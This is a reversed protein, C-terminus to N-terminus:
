YTGANTRAVSVLNSRGLSSAASALYALLARVLEPNIPGDRPVTLISQQSPHSIVHHRSPMPAAAYTLGFLTCLQEVDATTWPWEPHDRMAAFLSTTHKLEL